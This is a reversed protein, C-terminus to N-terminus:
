SRRLGDGVERRVSPRAALAKLARHSLAEWDLLLQEYREILGRLEADEELTVLKV